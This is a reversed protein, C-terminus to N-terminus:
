CKCVTIVSVKACLEPTIRNGKEFHGGGVWLGYFAFNGTGYKVLIYHTYYSGGEGAGGGCSKVSEEWKQLCLVEPM